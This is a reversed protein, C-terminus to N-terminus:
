TNGTEVRLSPKKDLRPRDLRRQLHLIEVDFNTRSLINSGLAHLLIKPTFNPPPKKGNIRDHNPTSLNIKSTQPPHNLISSIYVGHIQTNWFHSQFWKKKEFKECQGVGQQHTCVKSFCFSKRNVQTLHHHHRRCQPRPPSTQSLSQQTRARINPSGFSAISKSPISGCSPGSKNQCAPPHSSRAFSALFYFSPLCRIGGSIEVWKIM